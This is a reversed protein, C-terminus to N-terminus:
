GVRPVLVVHGTTRDTGIPQGAMDALTVGGPGAEFRRGFREIHAIAELIERHYGRSFRWVFECLDQAVAVECRRDIILRVDELMAPLFRVKHPARSEIQPYRRLHDRLKGMGVLVTPVQQLDSIGRIGEMIASRNSVLDCEDIVLGFTRGDVAAAHCREVLAATVATFKQKAGRPPTINLSGLIDDLMWRYDWEVQARVYVSGTQVAWRHLATTKGLGPEGDVVVLCAEAAGRQELGALTGLFGRVNSTEVFVNRM